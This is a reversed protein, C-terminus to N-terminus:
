LTIKATSNAYSASCQSQGQTHNNSTSWTIHPENYPWCPNYPPQCPYIPYPIYEKEKITERKTGLLNTLAVLLKQAQEPTLSIEKGEIDLVIKKILNKEKSMKGIRELIDMKFNDVLVTCM